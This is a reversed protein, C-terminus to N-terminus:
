ALKLKDGSEFAPKTSQDVPEMNDEDNKAAYIDAWKVFTAEDKNFSIL